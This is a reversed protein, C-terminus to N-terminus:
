GNDAIGSWKYVEILQAAQIQQGVELRDDYRLLDPLFHFVVSRTSQFVGADLYLSRGYNERLISRELRQNPCQCEIQSLLCSEGQHFTM